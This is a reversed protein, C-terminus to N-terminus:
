CLSNGLTDQEEAGAGWLHLPPTPSGAQWLQHRQLSSVRLVWLTFPIPAPGSLATSFLILTSIHVGLNRISFGNLKGTGDFITDATGRLLQNRERLCPAKPTDLPFLVSRKWSCTNPLYQRPSSNPTDTFYLLAPSYERQWSTRKFDSAPPAPPQELSTGLVPHINLSYINTDILYVGFM